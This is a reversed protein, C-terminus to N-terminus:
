QSAAMERGQLGSLEKYDLHVDFVSFTKGDDTLYFSALSVWTNGVLSIDVSAANLSIRKIGVTPLSFFEEQDSSGDQNLDRWVKVKGWSADKESFFGDLNTDYGALHAFGDSYGFVDGFMETRDNIKGDANRDEVLFGDDANVWATLEPAGDNDYDFYVGDVVETVELGDGDLDIAIPTVSLRLVASSTNGKSDQINYSLFYNENRTESRDISFLFSGDDKLRMVGHPLNYQGFGREQDKADEFLIPPNGPGHIGFDDNAIVSGAFLDSDISDLNRQTVRDDKAKPGFNPTEHFLIPYIALFLFIPIFIASLYSAKSPLTWSRWQNLKPVFKRVM